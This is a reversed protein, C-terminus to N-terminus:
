QVTGTLPRNDVLPPLPVRPHYEERRPRCGMPTRQLDHYSCYGTQSPCGMAPCGKSLCKKRVFEM